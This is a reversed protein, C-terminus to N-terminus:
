LTHVFFQSMLLRFHKIVQSSFVFPLQLILRLWTVGKPHQFYSGFSFRGSARISDRTSSGPQKLGCGHVGADRRAKKIQFCIQVQLCDRNRNELAGSDMDTRLRMQSVLVPSVRRKMKPALEVEGFGHLARVSPRRADVRHPDKNQEGVSANM